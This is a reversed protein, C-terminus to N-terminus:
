REAMDFSMIAKQITGSNAPHAVGFVAGGLVGTLQAPSVPEGIRM